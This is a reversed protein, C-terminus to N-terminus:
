RDSLCKLFYRVAPTNRNNVWVVRLLDPSEERVKVMRIQDGEQELRFTQSQCQFDPMPTMNNQIVIVDLKYASLEQILEEETGSYFDVSLTPYQKIVQQLVDAIYKQLIPNFFGIRLLTERQKKKQQRNRYSHYLFSNWKGLMFYSLVFIGLIGVVVLMKIM